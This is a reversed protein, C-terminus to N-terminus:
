AVARGRLRTTILPVTMEEPVRKFEMMEETTCLWDIFEELQLNGQFELVETRM